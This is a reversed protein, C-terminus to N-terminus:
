SAGCPPVVGRSEWIPRRQDVWAFVKNSWFSAMTLTVRDGTDVGPAGLCQGRERLRMAGPPRAHCCGHGLPRTDQGDEHVAGCGRGKKQGGFAPCGQRGHHRPLASGVQAGAGM